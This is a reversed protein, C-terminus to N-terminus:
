GPYRIATKNQVNVSGVIWRLVNRWSLLDGNINVGGRTMAEIAEKPLILQWVNLYSMTGTFGNLSTNLGSVGVLFNGGSQLLAALHDGKIKDGQYSSHYYFLLQGSVGDWTVCFIGSTTSLTPMLRLATFFRLFRTFLLSYIYIYNYKM